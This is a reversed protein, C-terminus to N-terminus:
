GNTNDKECKMNVIKVGTKDTKKKLVTHKKVEREELDLYLLITDIRRNTDRISNLVKQLSKSVDIDTLFYFTESIENLGHIRKFERLEREVIRKVKATSMFFV